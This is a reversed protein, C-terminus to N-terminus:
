FLSINMSSLLPRVLLRAEIDLADDDTWQTDLRSNLACLDAWISEPTPRLVVRQPLVAETATESSETDRHDYMEVILCGATDYSM